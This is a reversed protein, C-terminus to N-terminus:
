TSPQLSSRCPDRKLPCATCLPKLKCYAKALWVILGHYEKFLNLDHPLSQMFFEQIENYSAKEDILNLRSFIRRTYADVVFVSRELAYLLISDATEPGIGNVDLLEARLEATGTRGTNSLRGEYKSMLFRVFDKLRAAKVRYYGSPRIVRSLRAPRVENLSAPSLLDAQKLNAIAKEVNGWNTNQTLIAGVSIEFPSDSPWWGSPGFHDALKEYISLLTLKRTSLSKPM